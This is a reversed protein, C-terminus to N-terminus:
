KHDLVSKHGESPRMLRGTGLYESTRDRSFEALVSSTGRVNQIFPETEMISRTIWTAIRPLGRWDALRMAWQHAPGDSRSSPTGRRTLEDPNMYLIYHLRTRGHVAHTRM